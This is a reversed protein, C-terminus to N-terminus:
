DAADEDAGKAVMISIGILALGAAIIGAPLYIMGIGVAVAAAGGYLLGDSLYHGPSDRMKKHM